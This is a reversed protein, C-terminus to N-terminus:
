QSTFNRTPTTMYFHLVGVDEFVSVPQLAVTDAASNVHALPGYGLITWQFDEAPPLPLEPVNPIAITGSTTFVHFNATDSTINVKYVTQATTTFAFPTATTVNTANNTPGTLVPPLPMGFTVDKAADLGPFVFETASGNLSSKGHLAAKGAAIVPITSTANTTSATWLEIKRTGFEQTLTLSPAPFGSPQTVTGTLAATTPAALSINIVKNTGAVLDQDATVGYGPYATPANLAGRTIQIGYLKSTTNASAPHWDADVGAYQATNAAVTFLDGDEGWFLMAPTAINGGTRTGSIPATSTTVNSGISFGQSLRPVVPDPRTLGKYYNVAPTSSGGSIGDVGIVYLDYPIKVDTFTFDGNSDTTTAPKGVIRVVVGMTNTRLTGTVTITTLTLSLTATHTLAGATGTITVDSTGATATDAVALVLNTTTTGDPLSAADFAGTVGTPLGTVSLAVADSFGTGRTLDVAVMGSGTISLSLAAPNVALGFDGAPTADASGEGADIKTNSVSGCATAAVAAFAWVLLSTKHKM